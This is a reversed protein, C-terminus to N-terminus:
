AVSLTEFIPALKRGPQSQDGPLVGCTALLGQQSDAFPTINVQSGQQDVSRPGHDPYAFALNMRGVLPQLSEEASPRLIHGGDRQRVLVRPDGLRQQGVLAVEPGSAWRRRALSLVPYM